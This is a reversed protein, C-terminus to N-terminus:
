EEAILRIEETNKIVILHKKYLNGIAKKFNKKSIGFVQKIKEPSTKDTISMSGNNSKLYDMILNATDDIQEFGSKQLSLDIKEDDRIKKIFAKMQQGIKLNQFIENNYLMGWHLNNIIAKYGLETTSHILIEVEEGESYVIPVNDLFKDVKASAVLKKSISDLYVHAIIKDGEKVTRKQERFPLLLDKPLGWGLFAGIETLSVVELYAFENVKVWPKETTAILRDESDLYIFVELENNEPINEPIYRKPLLIEGHEGGDLYIGFDLEKVIQLTNYEGIKAM